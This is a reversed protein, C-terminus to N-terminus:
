TGIAKPNKLLQDMLVIRLGTSPADVYMADLPSVMLDQLISNRALPIHELEAIAVEAEIVEGEAIQMIFPGVVLTAGMIFKMQQTKIMKSKLPVKM